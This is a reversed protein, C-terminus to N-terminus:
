AELLNSRRGVYRCRAHSLAVPFHENIQSPMVESTGTAHAEQTVPAHGHLLHLEPEAMLVDLHRLIAIGEKLLLVQLLTQHLSLAARASFPAPTYIPTACSGYWRFKGNCFLIILSIIIQVSPEFARGSRWKCVFGKGERVRDCPLM